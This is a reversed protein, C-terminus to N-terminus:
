TSQVDYSKQSIGKMAQQGMIVLAIEDNTLKDEPCLKEENDIEYTVNVITQLHNIHIQPIGELDKKQKDMALVLHIIPSM